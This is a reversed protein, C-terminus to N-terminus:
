SDQACLQSLFLVSQQRFQQLQQKRREESDKSVNHKRMTRTRKNAFWYRIQKVTLRTDRALQEKEEESPYPSSRNKEFWSNLIATVRPTFHRPYHDVHSQDATDSCSSSVMARSCSVERVRRQRHVFAQGPKRSTTNSSRMRKNAMWKRVQAVTIHGDHALENLDPISPYPHQQNEQYWLEMLDIAQPNLYKRNGLYPSNTTSNTVDDSTTMDVPSASIYGSDAESVPSTTLGTYGLGATVVPSSMTSSPSFLSTMHHPTVHHQSIGPVVPSIPPQLAPYERYQHSVQTSYLPWGSASYPVPSSGDNYFRRTSSMPSPTTMNSSEPLDVRISSSKEWPRFISSDQSEAASIEDMSVPCMGTINSNKVMRHYVTNM